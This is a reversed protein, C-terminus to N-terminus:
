RPSIRRSSELVVELRRREREAGVQLVPDVGEEPRAPVTHRAATRPVGGEPPARHARRDAARARGEEAQEGVALGRLARRHLQGTREHCLQASTGEARIDARSIIAATTATSTAAYRTQRQRRSLKSFFASPM